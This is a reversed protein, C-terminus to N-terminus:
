GSLSYLVVTSVTSAVAACVVETLTAPPSDVPATGTQVVFTAEVLPAVLHTAEHLEGSVLKGSV